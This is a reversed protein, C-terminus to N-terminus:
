AGVVGDVREDIADHLELMLALRALLDADIGGLAGFSRSRLRERVTWQFAGKTRLAGKKKLCQRAVKARGMRIATHVWPPHNPWRSCVSARTPCPPAPRELRM